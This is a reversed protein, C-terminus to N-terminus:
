GFRTFSCCFKEIVVKENGSVCNRGDMGEIVPNFGDVLNEM